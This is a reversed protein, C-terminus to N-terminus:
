YNRRWRVAVRQDGNGLFSSILFLRPRVQWEVSSSTAGLAGRAVELYVDRTIYKGGTVLVEGAEQRLDLRDLSVARRAADTVDFSGRGALTALSAALQAAQLPSLDQVSQGFLVQPLIEDEPLPPDSTIDIQPDDLRGTIRVRATLDAADAEATLAVEADAPDGQFTVLGETLQFPRGALTVQGRLMRAEGLIRPADLSGTVRADLAWEAEAGRGRTFLRRPGRLRVDLAIPLAAVAPETPRPAGGPRNIEIVEILPPPAANLQPPTLEASLIEVDGKLAYGRPTWDLTLRGDAVARADPRALVQMDDLDIALQGAQDRGLRGSGSVKGNGRDKATLSKLVAGQDDFAIAANLDRLTLGSIKDDFRAARLELAGTGSLRDAGIRLVGEGEVQGSLSQDLPGVVAWLGDIPGAASWAIESGAGIRRAIRLPAASAEVAIAGSARARLGAASTAEARGAITKDDLTLAIQADIPDRARRALRFRQVIADLSGRLDDGAGRLAARGSLTGALREGEVAIADLPLDRAIAEMSLAGRDDRWDIALDGAGIAFAAEVRTSGDALTVAIPSRSSLRAGALDGNANLTIRTRGNRFDADGTAALRFPAAEGFAGAGTMNIRPTEYSGSVSLRATDLRVAPDIAANRLQVDLAWNEPSLRLAGALAGTLGPALGDALGSLTFAGEPGADGFAARGTARAGALTAVIEDLALGRRDIALASTMTLPQDLYRAQLSLRGAHGGSEPALDVTVNADRMAAGAVDLTALRANATVSVADAPGTVAGTIDAAGDVNAGGIRLPGRATAELALDLRGDDIRGRVGARLNRANVRASRVTVGREFALTADIAARRGVLQNLPEPLGALGDLDGRAALTSPAGPTFTWAGAGRGSWGPIVARLDALTWRGALPQGSAVQGEGVITALKSRVDLKRLTAVRSQRAYSLDIEARAGQLLRATIPSGAAVADDVAARMRIEGRDASAQIPGEGSLQADAMAAKALTVRGAFITRDNENSLNGKVGVRGSELSLARADLDAVIALPGDPAFANNLRGSVSSTLRESAIKAEIAGPAANRSEGSAQVTWNEGFRAAADRLAPIALFDARADLSWTSETWRVDATVADKEAIRVRATGAADAADIDADLAGGVLDALAGDAPSVVRAVARVRPERAFLVALTDGRDASAADLRLTQLAADAIALGGTLRLTAAREGALGPALSIRELTLAELAVDMRRGKPPPASLVPRRLVELEAASVRAIDVRGNLLALPRWHLQANRARAWVGQEDRLTLEAIRLDSLSAGAVGSVDLTGLRWVKRGDAVHDVILAAGPGIAWVALGLAAVAGLGVTALTRRRM